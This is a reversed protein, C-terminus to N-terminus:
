YRKIWRRQIQKLLLNSIRINSYMKWQRVMVANNMLKFSSKATETKAEARLKANKLVYSKMFPSQKFRLMEYVRKVILGKSVYYKLNRYCLSYQVKDEVTQLL